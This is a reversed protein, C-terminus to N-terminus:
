ETAKLNHVADLWEVVEATPDLAEVIRKADKYAM